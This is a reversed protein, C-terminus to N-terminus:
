GNRRLRRVLSELSLGQVVITFVAVTYTAALLAPKQSPDQISLALAVSIGGRIGAWTLIPITGKEFKTSASLALVPLAVACLRAILVIPVAALALPVLSLDFRVILVELGILLFLVASLIEDILTWFAFLYRHTVDSMAFRAGRNGILVGAAVVAIPGSIDLQLALSYTGTVLALSILVEIPYDDIARMARYAVYGTAVGLAAGGIAQVFFLKAFEIPGFGNGGTSTAAALLITFLVVGVGDNFLSEGSIDMQLSAGVKSEKLTGLVAVPDTPSILAGFVLAWSFPMPSGLWASVAFLGIAVVITSICV